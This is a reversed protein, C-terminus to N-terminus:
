SKAKESQSKIYDRAMDMPSMSSRRIADTFFEPNLITGAMRQVIKLVRSITPQDLQPLAESLTKEANALDDEAFGEQILSRRVYYTYAIAATLLSTLVIFSVLIRLMM